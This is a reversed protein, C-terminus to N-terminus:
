GGAAVGGQHGAADRIRYAPQRCGATCYRRQRGTAVRDM